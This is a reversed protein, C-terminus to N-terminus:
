HSKTTTLVNKKSTVLSEKSAVMSKRSTVLSEKSAVMHTKIERRPTSAFMVLDQKPIHGRGLGRHIPWTGTEKSRMSSLRETEPLLCRYLKAEAM